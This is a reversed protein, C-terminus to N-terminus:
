KVHRFRKGDLAACGRNGFRVQLIPARTTTGKFVLRHLGKNLQLPVMTWGIAGEQTPGRQWIQQGDVHVSDLSNGSFQLQYLADDPSDFCTDMLLSQDAGPNLKALWNANKTESVIAPENKGVTVKIGDLLDSAKIKPVPGLAAPPLVMLQLPASFGVHAGVRASAQLAVPGPGLTQTDVSLTGEAGSITGLERGNHVIVISKATPVKARVLLPTGYVVDSSDSKERTLTLSDGRNDVVFPVIVRSQTELPGAAIAVARLEHWGDALSTTDLTLQGKASELTRRRGDIFIEFHDVATPDEPGSVRPELTVKGSVRQGPEIGVMEITLRKAWPQCLADGVILLQYPGFVSQYFAEALSAGRVYHVHIFPSPFKQPLAMPEAVTGSSGAAGYRLFESLPTQGAGERMMGGFSTLHECIAGPLIQSGSKRWDVAASGVMVGAVDDKKQPLAGRVIAGQVSTGELSKVASAFAAQRTTSRVDNNEMYYITGAPSTADAAVSRELYSLSESVSNGRGSTVALMTSLLYRLGNESVRTGTEDWLYKARFGTAPQVGFSEVQKVEMKKLLEQFGPLSRLPELDPDAQSKKADAWGATVAQELATLAADHKGLRALCCALNYHLVMNGPLRQSLAGLSEAAEDWKSEGILQVAQQFARRDEPTRPMSEIEHPPRRFYFNNQLDVYKPNKTLVLQFLYTLGNISATPALFKPPEAGGLDKRVDIATPFDSSYVIYDIHELLNREFLTKLVPVFISERFTEVDTQEFNPLGEIYIVHSWPIQRLQVYHNAIMKSAWSDANVVLAVNEPGGGGYLVGALSAVCVIVLLHPRLASKWGRVTQGIQRGCFWLKIM